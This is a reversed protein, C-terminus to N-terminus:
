DGAAAEGGCNPSPADLPQTVTRPPGVTVAGREDLRVEVAVRQSFFPVEVDSSDLIVAGDPRSITWEEGARLDMSGSECGSGTVTEMPAFLSPQWAFQVPTGSENVFVLTVRQATLRWSLIGLAVVALGIVVLSMAPRRRGSTASTSNEGAIAM